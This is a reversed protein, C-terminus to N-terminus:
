GRLLRDAEEKLRQEETKPAEEVKEEGSAAEAEARAKDELKKKAALEQKKKLEEAQAPDIAVKVKFSAEVGKFLKVKVEYNGLAKIPSDVTIMRREVFVEKKELEKALDANTVTGFLRGSAGVTKIMEITMGDIKKKAAEAKNKEESVKKALMKEHHALQAKNSADALVALSNPILYNRGFGPSVNVMEGINGLAKVKETLIVKM